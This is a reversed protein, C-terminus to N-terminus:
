PSLSKSSGGSPFSFATLVLGRPVLAAVAAAGAAPVPGWGKWVRRRECGGNGQPVWSRVRRKAAREGRGPQWSGVVVVRTECQESQVTWRSRKVGEPRDLVAEKFTKAKQPSCRLRFGEQGGESVGRCREKRCSPFCVAPNRHEGM